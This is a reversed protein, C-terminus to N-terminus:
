HKLQKSIAAHHEKLKPPFRDGYQKFYEETADLEESWQKKDITLLAKMTEPKIGLDAVDLDAELPM